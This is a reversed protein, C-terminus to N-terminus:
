GQEEDLTAPDLGFADLGNIAVLRRERLYTDWADRSGLQPVELCDEPPLDFLPTAMQELEVLAVAKSDSDCLCSKGPIQNIPPRFTDLLFAECSEILYGKPQCWRMLWPNAALIGSAAHHNQKFRRRISKSSKGIYIPNWEWDLFAYLGPENPLKAAADFVGHDDRLPILPLTQWAAFLDKV